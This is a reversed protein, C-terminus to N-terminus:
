PHRFFEGHLRKCVKIFLKAGEEESYVTRRFTYEGRKVRVYLYGQKKNWFVGTPLSKPKRKRNHQNDAHSALRLNSFRNDFPDGNKHDVLFGAVDIGMMTMAVRSSVYREGLVSMLANWPSGNPKRALRQVVLKLGTKNKRYFLGEEPLYILAKELDEKSPLTKFKPRGDVRKGTKVPPTGKSKPNQSEGSNESPSLTHIKQNTM